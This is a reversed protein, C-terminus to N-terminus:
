FTPLDDEVKENYGLFADRWKGGESRSLFLKPTKIPSPEIVNEESLITYVREIEEVGKKTLRMAYSGKTKDKYFDEVFGREKFHKVRTVAFPQKDLPYDKIDKARWYGIGDLYLLFFFDEQNFEPNRELFYRNALFMYRLIKEYQRNTEFAYKFGRFKKKEKPNSYKKRRKYRPPTYAPRFQTYDGDPHVNYGADSQEQLYKKIRYEKKERNSFGM